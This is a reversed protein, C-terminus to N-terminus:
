ENLLQPQKSKSVIVLIEGKTSGPIPCVHDVNWGTEVIDKIKKESDSWFTFGADVGKVDNPKITILKYNKMKKITITNTM